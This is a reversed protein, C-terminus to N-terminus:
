CYRRLSDMNMVVLGGGDRYECNEAGDEAGKYLTNLSTIYGKVYCHLSYRLV